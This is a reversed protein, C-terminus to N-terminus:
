LSRHFVIDFANSFDLIAIDVAKGEDVFGTM